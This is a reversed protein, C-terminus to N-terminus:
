ARANKAIETLAGDLIEIIQKNKVKKSEEICFWHCKDEKYIFHVPASGETYVLSIFEKDKFSVLEVELKFM